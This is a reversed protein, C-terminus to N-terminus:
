TMVWGFHWSARGANAATGAEERAALAQHRTRGANSRAVERRWVMRVPRRARTYSGGRGAQHQELRKDADKAIGTYLSGDACCLMYVFPM